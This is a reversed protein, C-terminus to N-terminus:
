KKNIKGYYIYSVTKIDFNSIGIYQFKIIQFKYKLEEFYNQQQEEKSSFEKPCTKLRRQGTIKKM